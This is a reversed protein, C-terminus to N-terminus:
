VSVENGVEKGTAYEKKEGKKIKEGKKKGRWKLDPILRVLPLYVV